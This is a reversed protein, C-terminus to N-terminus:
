ARRSFARRQRENLGGRGERWIGAGSSIDCALCNKLRPMETIAPAISIYSNGNAQRFLGLALVKEPPVCNDCNRFRTDLIATTIRPAIVNLLMQFTTRRMRLQQRFFDDPITPDYYHIEFWSENPRLLTWYNIHM